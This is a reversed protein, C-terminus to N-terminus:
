EAVILPLSLYGDQKIVTIKYHYNNLYSIVLDTCIVNNILHPEIIMKPHFQDFFNSDKFIEIEGGEIDCKIYDVTQLKLSSALDSLTTSEVRIMKNLRNGVVSVASSGMTGESSFDIFGSSSWVAKNLLRINRHFMKNYKSINVKSCSYNTADPELSIVYGKANSSNKTIQQDFFISTLGSFAGLDIVVSDSDINFYNLYQQNTKYSESYSPTLIKFANFDKIKKYNPYSYDIVELDSMKEAFVASFFEDFNANIDDKYINYGAPLIIIKNDKVLFLGYDDEYIGIDGYKEAHCIIDKLKSTRRQKFFKYLYVFKDKKTQNFALFSMIKYIESRTWNNM